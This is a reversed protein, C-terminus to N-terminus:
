KGAEKFTHYTKNPYDSVAFKVKNHTKYKKYEQLYEQAKNQTSLFM